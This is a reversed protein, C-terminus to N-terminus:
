PGAELAHILHDLRRIMGDVDDANLGGLIEDIWAEHTRALTEFEQRGKDTLQIIQTRRDQPPTTRLVLGEEVLKDVIGTINGNSVRLLRSIDKMKLGDPARSLASMVDFRPLTTAFQARLRRRIEDEVRGTSKILKLWLRLRDKSLQAKAGQSELDAM